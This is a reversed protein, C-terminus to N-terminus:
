EEARMAKFADEARDLTDGIDKQTHGLSLCFRGYFEVGRERMLTSFQGAHEFDSDFSDAQNIIKQKHTFIPLYSAAFGQVRMPQDYQQALQLLGARLTEGLRRMHAFAAGNDRELEELTAIVGAMSMPHGNFTGAEVADGRAIVDMVERKGCFSSVPMGGGLAKGLVALDPTVGFYGQAGRLDIRFGTLVEDFILMAGYRDCLARTGELYGPEPMCGSNNVMVPEMLVAAIDGGFREFLRELAPLDNWELLFTEQYADKYRGETLTFFSFPDEPRSGVVPVPNDPDEVIGGWFHDITGHYHGNFRVYKNRGTFARAIRLAGRNAETGSCAFRVLEACPVHLSVKEAAAIALETQNVTYLSGAQQKLAAQMHANSHGLIAAGYSMSYDIYSNGDVDYVRAGEARTIYPPRYGQPKRFNTMLAGPIVRTGRERLEDSHTTQLIRM